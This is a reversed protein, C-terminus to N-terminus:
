KRKKQTRKMRKRPSHPTTGNAKSVRKRSLTLANLMMRIRQYERRWRRARRVDEDEQARQATTMTVYRTISEQITMIQRCFENGRTSRAAETPSVAGTLIRCLLRKDRVDPSDCTLCYLFRDLAQDVSLFYVKDDEAINDNVLSEVFSLLDESISMNRRQEIVLRAIPRLQRACQVLADRSVMAATRMVKSCFAVVWKEDGDLRDTKSVISALWSGIGRSILHEVSTCQHASCDLFTLAVHRVNADYQLPLSILSMVVSFVHRRILLNNDCERQLGRTLLRLLWLRESKHTPRGSNFLAYFMPVDQLDLCPRSLLFSNLQPYVAHGPRLLIKVSEAVFVGILTPIQQYPRDIAGRLSELLLEIQPRERFTNGTLLGQSQQLQLQQFYMGVCAYGMRRVEEDDCSLSVAVYGLIGTEALRRLAVHGTTNFVHVLMRLFHRPDYVDAREISPSAIRDISRRIRRSQVYEEDFLWSADRDLLNKSSKTAMGLVAEGWRYDFLKAGVGTHEEYLELLTRIAIDSRSLSATYVACLVRVIRTATATNTGLCKAPAMKALDSMTQFMEHRVDNSDYSRAIHLFKSHGVIMAWLTTHTDDNKTNSATETSHVIGIHLLSRVLSFSWAKDFHARFAARSVDLVVRMPLCPSLRKSMSCMDSALMSADIGDQSQQVVVNACRTMLNVSDESQLTAGSSLLVTRALRIHWASWVNSEDLIMKVLRTTLPCMNKESRDELGRRFMNVVIDQSFLSMSHSRDAVHPILRTSLQVIDGENSSPSLIASELAIVVVSADSVDSQLACKRVYGLFKNSRVSLLRLARAQMDSMSLSSRSIIDQRILTEVDDSAIEARRLQELSARVLLDREFATTHKVLFSQRLLISWLADPMAIKRANSRLLAHAVTTIWKIPSIDDAITQNSMVVLVADGIQRIHTSELMPALLTVVCRVFTDNGTDKSLFTRVVQDLFALVLTRNADIHTRHYTALISAITMTWDRAYTSMDMFNRQVDLSSLVDAIVVDVAKEDCRRLALRLVDLCCRVARRTQQTEEREEERDDAAHKSLISAILRSSRCVFPMCEKPLRAVARQVDAHDTDLGFMSMYPCVCLSQVDFDNNSHKLNGTCLAHIPDDSEDMAYKKKVHHFSSITQTASITHSGLLLIDRFVRHVFKACTASVPSTNRRTETLMAATLVTVRARRSVMQVDNSAFPDTVIRRLATLFFPLAEANLHSIWCLAEARKQQTNVWVTLTTSKSTVEEEDEHRVFLPAEHVLASVLLTRLATKLEVDNCSVFLAALEDLAIGRAGKARIWDCRAPGVVCLLRVIETQVGVHGNHCLSSSILRRWDFRVCSMSEPMLVFYYRLVRAATGCLIRDATEDSSSNLGSSVLHLVIQAEPCIARLRSEFIVSRTSSLSVEFCRLMGAIMQITMLRVLRASHQLGRSLSTRQLAIPAVRAVDNSSSSSRSLLGLLKTIFSANSVFRLALKPELDCSLTKVYKELVGRSRLKLIDLVVNQQDIDSLPKLTTLVRVITEDDCRFNSKTSSAPNHAFVRRVFSLAVSRHAESAGFLRVVNHLNSGGCVVARKTYHSARRQIVVIDVIANLFQTVNAVNDRHLGAFSASIVERSRVVANRVNMSDCELLAVFFLLCPSRMARVVKSEGHNKRKVKQKGTAAGLLRPFYKHQLDVHQYIVQACSAGRKVMTTLLRLVGKIVTTSNANLSAYFRRVQDRLVIHCIRSARSTPVVGLIRVLVKLILIYTKSTNGQSLSSLIDTLERCEPSQEVYLELVRRGFASSSAGDDETESISALFNSLGSEAATPEGKVRHTGRSDNGGDNDENLAVLFRSLCKEARDEITEESSMRVSVGALYVFPALVNQPSRVHGFDPM